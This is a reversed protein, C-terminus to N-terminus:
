YGLSRDIVSGDIANITLLTNIENTYSEGEDPIVTTTGFFDWVPILLGSDRSNQETIRMLGLRVETIKVHLEDATGEEDLYGYTIPLMKEFVSIIESFDLLSANETVTERIAYPSLYHFYVVGTEDVILELREYPWPVSVSNEEEVSNGDERTLTVPIGNVARQYQLSYAWKGNALQEPSLAAEKGADAVANGGPIEDSMVAFRIGACAMDAIGLQALIDEAVSQAEAETMTFSEPIQAEATDKRSLLTYHSSNYNGDMQTTANVYTAEIDNENFFGNNIYLYAVKGNVAATGDIVQADPNILTAPAHFTTTAAILENTEPADALLSEYYEIIQELKEVDDPNEGDMNIPIAGDRMAYYTVLKEQIEERTLSLDIEYLTAGQLFVDIMKDAEEQTFCHKSVRMVSIDDSDPVTVIADANVTLDGNYGDFSATYTAPANLNEALSAGRQTDDKAIAKEILQEIDKQIVIEKEPTAQCGATSVAVMVIVFLILLSKKM